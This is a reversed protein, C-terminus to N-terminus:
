RRSRTLDTVSLEGAIVARAVEAIRTNNRRSHDRLTVFAREPTLDSRGVLVGKAQEIVVRSELAGQLQTNVIDKERVVREQLLGITAIDALSQMARLDVDSMAGTQLGFLNLAGVTQSRLRMPTAYVSRVGYGYAVRAWRPWRDIAVALDPVHVAVGTHIADLCPGEDAQLQFLEVARVDDASSALLEVGGAQDHMLLGASDAGFLHVSVRALEHLFAPLDYDDVLTDAVTIFADLLERQHDGQHTAQSTADDDTTTM